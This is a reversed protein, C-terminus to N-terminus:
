SSASTAPEAPGRLFNALSQQLVAVVLRLMAPMDIDDFMPQAGRAVPAWLVQDLGPGAQARRVVSLCTSLIYEVSEDSMNSVVEAVPGLSTVMDEPRITAGERLAALSIGMSALVPAVRRSVHLQRLADLKGVRYRIGDIEIEEM